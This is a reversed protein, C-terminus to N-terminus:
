DHNYGLLRSTEVLENELTKQKAKDKQSIAAKLAESLQTLKAKAASKTL